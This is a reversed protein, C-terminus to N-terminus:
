ESAPPTPTRDISVDTVPGAVEVAKTFTDQGAFVSLTYAGPEVDALSFAGDAAAVTAYPTSAAFIAAGMAPHIDCGVIYFGDHPFTFTYRGGTPIAVNFAGERTAEDRVRVNHLEEDNNLFVVPHGTRVLLVAPVFTQNVQDMTPSEAPAPFERPTEPDLTVIMVGGNAARPLTGRVVHAGPAPTPAAEQELSSAPAERPASSPGSCGLAVASPILLLAAM